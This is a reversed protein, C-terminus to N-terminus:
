LSTLLHGGDVAIVSGTMFSSADSALLLLPGDLDHFEGLRRQPIRKILAKGADTDFMGDNLDTQFYGPAIANVRIRHRALELGLQKTMQILGAKSIAYPTVQSGQRLGLVSAINIISGSAGRAVMSRAVETAVLWAGKLNTDLVHDYDAETQEIAAKSFAVGANNVLIDVPGASEVALRVSDADTVDLHVASAGCGFEKLREVLQELLAARRAALVVKAGAESLVRAFHAGFGASSAGTVLALKGSLDARISM